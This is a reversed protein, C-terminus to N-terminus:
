VEGDPLLPLECANASDTLGHNKLVFLLVQMHDGWTIGLVRLM